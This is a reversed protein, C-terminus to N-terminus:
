VRHMNIHKVTCEAESIKSGTLRDEVEENEDILFLAVEFKTPFFDNRWEAEM